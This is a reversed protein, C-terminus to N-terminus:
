FSLSRKRTEGRRRPESDRIVKWYLASTTKSESISTCLPTKLTYKVHPEQFTKNLYTSRPPRTDTDVMCRPLRDGKRIASSWPFTNSFYEM